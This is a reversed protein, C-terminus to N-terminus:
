ARASSGRRHGPRNLRLALPAPLRPGVARRRRARVRLKQRAAMRWFALLLLHGRHVALAYAAVRVEAFRQRQPVHESRDFAPGRQALRFNAPHRSIVAPMVPPRRRLCRRGHRTMQSAPSCGPRSNWMRGTRHPRDLQFVIVCVGVPFGSVSHCRPSIRAMRLAAGSGQLPFDDGRDPRRAGPPTFANPQGGPRIRFRSAPWWHYGSHVVGDQIHAVGGAMLLEIGLHEAEGGHNVARAAEHEHPGRGRVVVVVDDEEGDPVRSAGRGRAARRHAEVVDGPLHGGEVIQGRHSLPQQVGPRQDAGAIVAGVLAEVGLVGVPELELDHPQDRARMPAVLLM